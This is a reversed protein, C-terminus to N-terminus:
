KMRSVEPCECPIHGSKGYNYYVVKDSIKFTDSNPKSIKKGNFPKRRYNKGERRLFNKIKKTFM